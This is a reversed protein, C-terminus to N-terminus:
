SRATASPPARAGSGCRCDCCTPDRGPGRSLAARAHGMAAGSLAPAGGGGRGSPRPGAPRAGLGHQRDRDRDARSRLQLEVATDALRRGHRLIAARIRDVCRFGHAPQAPPILGPILGEGSFEAKAEELSVDPPPLILDSGELEDDDLPRGETRIFTWCSASRRRFREEDGADCAAGGRQRAREADRRRWRRARVAGRNRDPRDSLRSAARRERGHEAGGGGSGLEGAPAPSGSGLEAKM